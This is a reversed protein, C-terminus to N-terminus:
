IMGFQKGLAKFAQVSGDITQRNTAFCLRAFGPFGFGKGPVLILMHERAANCFEVDDEIPTKPFLYLGGEPRIIDFGSDILIDTLKDRRIKYQELDVKADISQEIVHQFFAPANVFGLTRNCYPAAVTLNDYDECNPSIALYGIRDGALSMSKSWSTCVLANKITAMTDPVTTNEDYVLQNYPEDSLVYICHDQRLLMDNLAKLNSEPYIAGTPNNPSNIIIGRTKPTIAKEIAEIDPLLTERDCEVIVPVAGHNPVYSVYEFFYPALVIVEDGPDCIAKVAVNLAGAAGVTMCIAEPKVDLGSKKSIDDAVVQRTSLYGGNSMYGHQGPTLDKATRIMAEIVEAPPELDPNGLSFDFVKDPGHEAKLRAGEEFMKRIWSGQHMKQAIQNSIM